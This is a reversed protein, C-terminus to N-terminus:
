AAKVLVEREKNLLSDFLSALQRTLELREFGQIFEIDPDTCLTGAEKKDILGVLLNKIGRVDCPDVCWGVRARQIWDHLDGAPVTAIIPKRTAAYEFIKGSMNYSRRGNPETSMPLFLVDSDALLQIAEAHSLYGRISVVNELGLQRVLERNKEGFSGAFSLAIRNKLAPHQDILARVAHLLFYPSKTRPDKPGHRYGFLSLWADALRGYQAGGPKSDYEMLTGAFGIHLRNGPRSDRLDPLDQQDFGNYIVHIKDACQPYRAALVEKMTPTVVVIADAAELARREQHREYWYHLRTPWIAATNDVWPDRYDVVWPVGLRKKLQHGLLVGSFPGVCTYVADVARETAIRQGMRRASPVWTLAYRDPRVLFSLVRHLRLKRSWDVILRQESRCRYVETAKVDDQLSNDRVRDIQEEALTLVLPNYDFQPLYKAFKAARQVAPGGCPPFYQAAFLINKM